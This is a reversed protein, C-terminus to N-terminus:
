QDVLLGFLLLQKVTVAVMVIRWSISTVLSQVLEKPGASNKKEQGM